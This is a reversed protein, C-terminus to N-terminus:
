GDKNSNTTQFKERNRTDNFKWYTFKDEIGLAKVNVINHNSPPSYPTV